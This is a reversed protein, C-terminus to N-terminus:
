VAPSREVDPHLRLWDLLRCMVLPEDVVVLRTFPGLRWGSLAIDHWCTYRAIRADMHLVLDGVRRQVWAKAPRRKSSWTASLVRTGAGHVPLVEVFLAIDASRGQSRRQDILRRVDADLIVAM